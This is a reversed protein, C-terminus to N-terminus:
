NQAGPEAPELKGCEQGFGKALLDRNRKLSIAADKEESQAQELSARAAKVGAEASQAQAVVDRNDLRAILEGAKVRSGEAVGLWELRGTAKSSIAAKRQAVVYGTANLVVFQQSPYSTVISATRVEVIRPQSAYWAAGAVAAVAFAALWLWRRRRSKRVPALGRDIRLKAIDPPSSTTM